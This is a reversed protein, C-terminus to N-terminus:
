KIFATQFTAQRIGKQDALQHVTEGQKLSAKFDRPTMGLAQAEAQVVARHIAHRAPNAKHAPSASPSASSAPAASASVLHPVLALAAVVTVGSAALAVALGSVLATLIKRKESLFAM